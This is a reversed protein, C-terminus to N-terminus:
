WTAGEGSAKLSLRSRPNSVRLGRLGKRKTLYNGWTNIRNYCCLASEGVVGNMREVEMMPVVEGKFEAM